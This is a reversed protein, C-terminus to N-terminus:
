WDLHSDSFQLNPNPNVFSQVIALKLDKDNEFDGQNEIEFEFVFGSYVIPESKLM